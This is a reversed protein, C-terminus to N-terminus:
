RYYYFFINKNRVVVWGNVRFDVCYVVKSFVVIYRLCNLLGFMRVKRVLFILDIDM